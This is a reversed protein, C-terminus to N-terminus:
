WGPPMPGGSLYGCWDADLATAVCHGLNIEVRDCHGSECEEDRWCPAGLPEPSSSCSETTVSCHALAECEAFVLDGMACPAGVNRPLECHQEVCSTGPGCSSMPQGCAENEGPLNHCTGDENCYLGAMCSEVYTPVCSEGLGGVRKCIGQGRHCYLGDELYCAATDGIPGAPGRYEGCSQPVACTSSCAQGESGHRGPLIHLCVQDTSSGGPDTTCTSQGGEPVACQYYEQCPSGLPLTGAFAQLCVGQLASIRLDTMRCIRTALEMQRLCDGGAAPDYQVAPDDLLVTFEGVDPAALCGSVSFTGSACCGVYNQCAFSWYVSRFDQKPVPGDPVRDNPAGGRDISTAGIQGGTSTTGAAVPRPSLKADHGTDGGCAFCLQAFVLLLGTMGRARESTM